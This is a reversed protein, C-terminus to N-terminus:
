GSTSTSSSTSTTTSPQPLVGESQLFQTAVTGPDQGDIEVAANLERMMPLTLLASVRNITAEFTPGEADLVRVSAVPVVNGWGFVNQPDALLPYGGSLLQPDTTSVVAAQVTGNDLAQYEPAGLELPKFAAPTVGYFQGIASLGTPSQQFQPPGGLTLQPAVSMLDSISQVNNEVAYDFTVAIANTDSFPTPNLLALGHALAYHQGALYADRRSRFSRQIGAVSSDWTDLYEPYMALQGTAMAQQIVEPPGISQNLAVSFGQAELAQYYLQGLLFQEPTNEDGITVPPRGAGPLTVTTTATATTTLTATTTITTTTGSASASTASTAATAPRSGAGCGALGLAAIGCALASSVSGALSAGRRM